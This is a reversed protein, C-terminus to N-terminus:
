KFQWVKKFVKPKFFVMPKPKDEELDDRLEKIYRSTTKDNGNYDVGDSDTLFLKKKARTFAVYALRREEEQELEDTALHSPLIGESMGVVFVVPFELGKASHITMLKVSNKVTKKDDGSMLSIKDLFEDLPTKDELERIYNLLEKINDLRDQKDMNFSKEIYEAYHTKELVENVLESLPIKNAKARLTSILFIFDEAQKAAKGKFNYSVNSFASWYSCNLSEATERVLGIKAEGMERKPVNIIREFSVNDNADNILKLYAIIDKIEKRDYFNTGSYITYPIQAKILSAEIARSAAHKRYLVAFDEYNYEKMSKITNAVFDGEDNWWDFHSYKVKDGDPNETIIDKEVRLTNKSIIKNAVDLIQPTSRYNQNMIITKTEKQKDFDVLIDPRAGRWSYITQDPDGVVFLNGHKESLLEVLENQRNSVDQYEDVMIYKLRNQWVALVDANTKFLKVALIILDNFDLSKAQQQYYLYGYYIADKISDEYHISFNSTRINRRADQYMLKLSEDQKCLEELSDEKLIKREAIVAEASQINMCEKDIKCEKYIKKILSKQDDSDLINFKLPFGLKDIYQRLIRLCFSHFTCIQSTNIDGVKQIIRESMEKAAKNTFTVCLINKPNVGSKVLEAYRETLVSTKGSGACAVVRIRGETTNIAEQQKENFM